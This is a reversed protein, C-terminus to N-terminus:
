LCRAREIGQPTLVRGNHAVQVLGREILLPEVRLQVAKVDRSKGIVTAISTVSAQYRTEGTAAVTRPQTLLYKLMAQMDRTLGDETTANLDTVIELALERTVTFDTLMAANRMFNNIERPVARCAKAFVLAADDHIAMGLDRANHKAMRVMDDVSYPELTPRIPFRNIFADPLQGEDTTAGMFTIRPFDLIGNATPLTRDEMVAFLVEPQTSSNRGRRDAVAQQHIEDLFLIDGDQMVERLELLTDHSIPAELQYVKVGLEHALVHAFTTKGTGSRGILLVHDLPQGRRKAVAVMRRLLNKAREQGVIGDFTVPRLKNASRAASAVPPAKRTRPETLLTRRLEATERAAVLHSDDWPDYPIEHTLLSDPIGPILDM